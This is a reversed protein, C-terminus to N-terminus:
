DAVRALAAVVEVGQRTTYRLDVAANTLLGQAREPEVLGAEGARLLVQGSGDLVTIERGEALSRFLM